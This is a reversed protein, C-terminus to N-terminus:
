PEQPTPKRHPRRGYVVYFPVWSHMGRDLVEKRARALLVAFYAPDGQLIQQYGRAFVNAIENRFHSLEFAGVNKLRQDRPWPNTPIKYLRQHVDEFGAEELYHKWQLVEHGSAGIRESMDFYINAMEVYASDAPLTGDDSQFAPHSGALQLYGGPKLHNFAQRVLRPWDRIAMILERGHIFDFSSEPWLWDSEVDDVEFVLNPPLMNPQVPATDVGIVKASPFQDAVDIAWIGSGTGLDLIKQPNDVIPAIFLKDDMLLTFKCHQLDNRDMERDDVPVWPKHIGYAAYLRGNEEVGEAYGEDDSSTDPEMRTSPAAGSAAKDNENGGDGPRTQLHQAVDDAPATRASPSEPAEHQPSAM